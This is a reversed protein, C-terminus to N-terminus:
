FTGRVGANGLGVFPSVRATSPPTASDKPQTLLLIVGTAAGVGGVIFGVTSITGFTHYSSLNSGETTPDCTGDPCADVLKAHKGMAIVGAVGGVALGAGGVGLAVFALTKRTSGSSTPTTEFSRAPAKAVPADPPALELEITVALTQGEALSIAKEGPLFGDASAKITHNGPNVPRKVGLSANPVPTSDIVVEPNTPGLVTITVWPIRPSIAEVEKAADEVAKAWPRPSGPLVGERVIRNYNEQAEVIRGLGVQARALGLLLTPAHVLADARFFKDVAVGYKKADLAQQGEQALTRATARDAASPDAFAPHAVL